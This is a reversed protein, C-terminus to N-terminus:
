VALTSASFVASVVSVVLLVAWRRRSSPRDVVAVAAAIIAVASLADFQYPKVRTAYLVNVPSLTLLGGAVAAAVRGCDLRRALVYVGAITLVAATLAPIQAWPTTRSFSLWFRLFLEFGPTTVGMRLADFLGAETALAPWADDRYLGLTTLGPVRLWLAVM